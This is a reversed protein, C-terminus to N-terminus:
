HASGDTQNNTAHVAGSKKGSIRNIFVFMSPILLLGIITAVIMGSFVAMGMVKRSEAGAGSATILPIVGLIFALSTMLIPRLRLKAGELAATMVDAGEEVKMKAFEVILIANKANLGILMVLGIQAFVNNVYAESFFRCIYLGLFAGM